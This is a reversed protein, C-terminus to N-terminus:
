VTGSNRESDKWTLIKSNQLTNKSQGIGQLHTLSPQLPWASPWSNKALIIADAGTDVIGEFWWKDLKLHLTPCERSVMQVCFLDSSGPQSAGWHNRIAPNPANLLLPLAQAVCQSGKPSYVQDWAPALIKIEGTYDNDIVSPHTILGRLTSSAQGLILFFMNPTPGFVGTPLAQVGDEPKLITSTYTCLYLGTSGPPARLLQISCGRTPTNNGASQDGLGALFSYTEPGLAPGEFRKGSPTASSQGHCRDQLPM